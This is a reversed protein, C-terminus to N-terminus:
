NKKFKEQKGKDAKYHIPRPKKIVLGMNRLNYWLGPESITVGFEKQLEMNLKRLTWYVIEGKSNKRSIVWKKIQQKQEGTLKAQQHGKPRERLGEIDNEKFEKVWRFISRPTVMLVDAVEAATNDRFAIIGRLQIALKGEQLDRFREEARLITEEDINKHRGM